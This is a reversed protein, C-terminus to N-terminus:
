ATDFHVLLQRLLVRRPLHLLVNYVDQTPILLNRSSVEELLMRPMLDPIRGQTKDELFM